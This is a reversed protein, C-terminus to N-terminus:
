SLREVGLEKNIIEKLESILIAEEIKINENILVSPLKTINYKSKLTEISVLDNDGAFPILIVKDGYDNKIELLLNSIVQQEAKQSITPNVYDYIYVVNVYDSNCKEKITISNLWFIARLLDFKKHETKIFKSIENSKDYKDLMKSEEYLRNGFYINNEQTLKCDKIDSYTLIQNQLRVDNMSIESSVYSQYAVNNRMNEVTFGIFFGIVFVFIAFILAYLFAFKQSVM